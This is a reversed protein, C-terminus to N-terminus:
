GNYIFNLIASIIDYVKDTKSKAPLQESIKQINKERDERTKDKLDIYKDIIELINKILTVSSVILTLTSAYDFNAGGHVSEIEINENDLVSTIIADVNEQGIIVYDDYFVDFLVKKILNKDM